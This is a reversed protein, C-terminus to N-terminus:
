EVTLFENSNFLVRCFAALGYRAVFPRALAVERAQAPRGYALEYARVIRRDTTDAERQLRAAFDDVLRLVFSSNLLTLAQLPTTTVARRPTTTSPVPM